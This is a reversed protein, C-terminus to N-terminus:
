FDMLDDPNQYLRRPTKQADNLHYYLNSQGGRTDWKLYPGRSDLQEVGLYRANKM